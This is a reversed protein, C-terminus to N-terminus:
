ARLEGILGQDPGHASAANDRHRKVAILGLAGLGFLCVAAFIYVAMVLPSDKPSLELLARYMEWENMAALEKRPKPMFTVLALIYGLLFSVSIFGLSAWTIGRVIRPIDSGYQKTLAIIICMCYTLGLVSTAASLVVTHYLFMIGTLIGTATMLGFAIMHVAGDYHRMQPEHSRPRRLDRMPSIPDPLVESQSTHIQEPSLTGQFTEIATKLTGIVKRALRVRNLSPLQEEQVATMIHCICSPGRLINVLLFPVCAGCLVWFFIGASRTHPLLLGALAIACTLGINWAAWRRTKRTIIAQIDSFYFRKYDESFGQNEVSLIHDKGLYLTCRSVLASFLGSRRPGKGPLRKYRTELREDM